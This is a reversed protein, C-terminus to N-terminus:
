KAEPKTKEQKEVYTNIPAPHWAPFVHVHIHFIDVVFAIQIGYQQYSIKHDMVHPRQHCPNDINQYITHDIM